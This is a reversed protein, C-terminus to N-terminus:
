CVWSIRCVFYTVHCRRCWTSGWALLSLQNQVCFYTMPLFWHGFNYVWNEHFCAWFARKWHSFVLTKPKNERIRPDIFEPVPPVGKKCFSGDPGLVASTKGAWVQLRQKNQAFLLTLCMIAYVMSFPLPRQLHLKDWYPAVILLIAFHTILQRVNPIHVIFITCYMHLLSLFKTLQPNNPFFVQNPFIILIFLKWVVRVTGHPSSWTHIIKGLSIYNLGLQVSYFINETRLRSIM